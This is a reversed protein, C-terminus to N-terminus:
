ANTPIKIIFALLSGFLLSFVKRMVLTSTRQQSFDMISRHGQSLECRIGSGINVHGTNMSALLSYSFCRGKGEM